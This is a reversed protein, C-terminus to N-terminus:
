KYMVWDLWYGLLWYNCSCLKKASRVYDIIGRVKRKILATSRATILLPM